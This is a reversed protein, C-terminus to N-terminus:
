LKGGNGQLVLEGAVGIQGATVGLCRFARGVREGTGVERMLGATYIGAM